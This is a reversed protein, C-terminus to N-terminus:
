SYASVPLDHITKKLNYALSEGFSQFPIKTKGIYRARKPLKLFPGDYPMRM